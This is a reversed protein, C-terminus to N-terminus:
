LTLELEEGKFLLIVRDEQIDVVSYGDLGWTKVATYTKDGINDYLVARLEKGPIPTKYNLRHETGDELKIDLYDRQVSLITYGNLAEGSEVFKTTGKWAVQGIVKDPLEIFGQYMIPLPIRDITRLVFDHRSTTDTVVAEARQVKAFPNRGTLVRYDAIGKPYKARTLIDEYLQLEARPMFAQKASSAMNDMQEELRHAAGQMFFSMVFTGLFVIGWLTLLGRFIRKELDKILFLESLKKFKDTIAATMGSM